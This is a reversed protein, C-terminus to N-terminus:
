SDPLELASLRYVHEAEVRLPERSTALIHVGRSGKLIASALDAAADIVHECNDFVLLMQKDRLAAIVAPLVEDSRIELQLESALAAPVLSSVIVPSLDIFWVGHDYAPLLKEAASLAVATKGIGAAGTLTLLRQTSVRHTIEQLIAARGILRTLQVPLNNPVAKVQLDTPEPADAFTIPAVFRYGRGPSNVIYRSAGQGDGLTRRLAAIHVTLNAEVVLTDPWVINVLDRKSVLDGARDTLAVLLDLARSGLRVPKDGEFLMRESVFLRFPGFLLARGEPIAARDSVGPESEARRLRVTEPTGRAPQIFRLTM